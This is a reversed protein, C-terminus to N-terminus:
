KARLVRADGSRMTLHEDDFYEMLPVATRRTTGILAKYAPTELRDHDEFHAVIRERLAEVAEAEFWLDGPTRLMRGERKLHALLDQLHERSIALRESWERESPPELGAEHADSLIRETLARDEAGLTPRHGSRSAVDDDTAVDGREVLRGLALEAAERPVNDPLQGRLAGIPMGPRLPEAAHYADLSALLRRELEAVAARDLWTRNSAVVATGDAALAALSDALVDGSHGTERRLHDEGIGALGSRRIRVALDTVPSRRSLEALERALAPDSRRRHPPAVDLVV